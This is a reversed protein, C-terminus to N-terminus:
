HRVQELLEETEKAHREETEQFEEKLEAWQQQTRELEAQLHEKELRLEELKAEHAPGSGGGAQLSSILKEKVQSLFCM